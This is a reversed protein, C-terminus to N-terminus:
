RNARNQLLGVAVGVIAYIVGNLPVAWPFTAGLLAPYTIVVIAQRIQEAASLPIKYDSALAIKYTPATAVFYAKWGIAISIGAIAWWATRHRVRSDYTSPEILNSLM